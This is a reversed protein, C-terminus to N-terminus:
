CRSPAAASDLLPKHKAPLEGAISISQADEKDMNRQGQFHGLGKSLGGPRMHSSWCVSRESKFVDCQLQIEQAIFLTGKAM